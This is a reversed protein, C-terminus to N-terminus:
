RMTPSRITPGSLELRSRVELIPGLSTDPRAGQSLRTPILRISTSAPTEALRDGFQGLREYRLSVTITVTNSIQYNDHGYASGEWARYERDLLGYGDVSQNINSFLITGNQKGNLGLPFDPWSLFQVASGLGPIEVDDEVRTLSGGIKLNHKGSVHIFDDMVAYNNQTFQQPSGSTFGISGVVTLNVLENAQNM